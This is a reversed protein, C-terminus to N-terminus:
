NKCYSSITNLLVDFDIPKKVFGNLHKVSKVRDSYASVVIIPLKNLQEDQGLKESLTWGDMVPMMLDLLILCPRLGNKLINLGEQGNPATTVAYGEMEIALKLIERIEADDEIVLVNRKKM